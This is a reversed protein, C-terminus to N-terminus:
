LKYSLGYSIINTVLKLASNVKIGKADEDIQGSLASSFDYPSYVVSLRENIQIGELFVENAKKTKLLEKTFQM